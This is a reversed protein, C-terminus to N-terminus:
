AGRKGLSKVVDVDEKINKKTLETSIPTALKKKAIMIIIVSIVAIVGLTALDALWTAMFEDFGDRMALLVFILAFFGLVGVVAFLAIGKVKASISAGVEQKALEVEKRILTSMDETVEKVLQGASKEAGVPDQLLDESRPQTAM